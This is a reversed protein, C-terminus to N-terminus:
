SCRTLQAIQHSRACRDAAEFRAAAAKCSLAHCPSCSGMVTANRFVFTCWNNKNCNYFRDGALDQSGEALSNQRVILCRLCCGFGAAALLLRCGVVLRMCFCCLALLLWCWGAGSGKQSATRSACAEGALAMIMNPSGQRQLERVWAKARNFSDTSTIDFVIIAAAAGRRRMNTMPKLLASAGEAIFGLPRRDYPWAQHGLGDSKFM